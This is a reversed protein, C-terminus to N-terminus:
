FGKAVLDLWIMDILFLVALTIGCFALGQKLSM